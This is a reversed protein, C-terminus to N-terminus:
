RAEKEKSAITFQMEGTGGIERVTVTAGNCTAKLLPEENLFKTILSALTKCQIRALDAAVVEPEQAIVPLGLMELSQRLCGDM